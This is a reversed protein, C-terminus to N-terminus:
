RNTTAHKQIAELREGVQREWARIADSNTQLFGPQLDRSVDSTFITYRAAYCVREPSSEVAVPIDDLRKVGPLVEQALCTSQRARIKQPESANVDLSEFEEQSCGFAEFLSTRAQHELIKIAIEMDLREPKDCAIVTALPDYEQTLPPLASTMWRHRAEEQRAAEEAEAAKREAEIAAEEEALARAEADQTQEQAALRQQEAEMLRGKQAACGSFLVMTTFIAIITLNFTKM